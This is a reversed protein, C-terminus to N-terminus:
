LPKKSAQGVARPYDPPTPHLKKIVILERGSLQPILISIRQAIESGLIELANKALEVENTNATKQAIFVGGVKIFPLTYEALVRLEAVARATAVDYLERHTPDKALEEARTNIINVNKLDLTKISHALFDTKKGVSEVLTVLIDPRMIAIPLGPFGAGTGVDILKKTNQPIAQLVTLSDLFHKIIVDSDARIATLNTHTNWTQLEHLFNSFAELQSATCAIGLKAANTALEDM